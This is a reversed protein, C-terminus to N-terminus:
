KGSLATYVEKMVRDYKEQIHDITYGDPLDRRNFHFWGDPM